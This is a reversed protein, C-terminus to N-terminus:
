GEKDFADVAARADRLPKCCPEDCDDEASFSQRSLKVEARLLDREARLRFIESGLAIMTRAHSSRSVWIDPEKGAWWQRMAEVEHDNPLVSLAADAAQEHTPTLV